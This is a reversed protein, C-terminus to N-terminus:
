VAVSVRVVSCLLISLTFFLNILYHCYAHPVLAHLQPLLQQGTLAAM